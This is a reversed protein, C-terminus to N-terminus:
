LYQKLINQTCYDKIMNHSDNDSEMLKALMIM